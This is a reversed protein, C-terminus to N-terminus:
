KKVVSIGEVKLTYDKFDSIMESFAAELKDALKAMNAPVKLVINKGTVKINFMNSPVKLGNTLVFAMKEEVKEVLKANSFDLKIKKGALPNNFDVTVRNSIISRVAGYMGNFDYTMGVVPRLKQEDFASKPFTKVLEKKKSGYADAVALDLSGSNKKMLAADLAPLVMSKGIVITQPGYSNIKLGNVKGLKESTTQVLKDNAYIDFDVTVFDNKKFTM